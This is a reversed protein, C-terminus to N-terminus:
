SLVDKLEHLLMVQYLATSSPLKHVELDFPTCWTISIFSILKTLKLLVVSKQSFSSAGSNSYLIHHGSQLPAYVQPINRIHSINSKTVM